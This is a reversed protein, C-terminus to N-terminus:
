IKTIKDQMKLSTDKEIQIHNKLSEIEKKFENEIKGYAEDNSLKMAMKRGEILTECGLKIMLYNEEPSFTNIIDPLFQDGPITIHIIKVSM